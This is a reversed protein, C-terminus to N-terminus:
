PLIFNFDEWFDSDYTFQTDSFITRSSLTEKRSFRNVDTTEIKGTAMEFWTHLSTQQFLQKKRKMKFFLDGRVHSIYYKGNYSKYSVRYTVKQPTIQLQNSKREILMPAAKKIYKPHLEFCVHLLSQNESDIYIDGRYLPESVNNRQEFHIVQALRGDIVTLDTSSYQYVMQDSPVLFDPLDKILDLMLSANIGSKMKAIITDKTLDNTIKRMKLLKVQETAVPQKYAPKYIKFLAETLGIFENKREIGERYFATLYVPQQMYNSERNLKMEQLLKIPNAIRVIVEQIPILQEELVITSYNSSLLAVPMQEPLYGLHSFRVTADSLHKPITLRFEGEANSITGIPHGEIGISAADLPKRNQKDILIGRIIQFTDANEVPTKARVTSTDTDTPAAAILIHNGMLRLTLSENRIIRKVADRISYNGKPLTVQKENNLLQSDYIFLYGSKESILDLLQYVTKSSKPLQIRQELPDTVSQAQIAFALILAGLLSLLRTTWLPRPKM